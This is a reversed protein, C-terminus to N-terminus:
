KINIPSRAVIKVSFLSNTSQSINICSTAQGLPVTWILRLKNTTAPSPRYNGATFVNPPPSLCRDTSSLPLRISSPPCYFTAKQGTNPSKHVTSLPSVSLLLPPCLVTSASNHVTSSPRHFTPYSPPRHVYGDEAGAAAAAPITQRRQPRYLTCQPSPRARHVRAAAARQSM